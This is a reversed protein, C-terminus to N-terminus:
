GLVEKIRQLVSDINGLVENDWFRLVQYGKEELWATREEDRTKAERENHQGSDIEIILRRDFCVFDVIYYGIASQQFVSTM